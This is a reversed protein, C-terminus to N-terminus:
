AASWRGLENVPTWPLDGGRELKAPWGREERDGRWRVLAVECPKNSADVRPTMALGFGYEPWGMLASSGRPRLDREGGKTQGHGAHAEMVLAPGRDRLTDLAALVPAAHDDTQIAMPVLRYLPGIVLLDPEHEDMWQHVRALDRDKTIDMRRECRLNLHHAPDRQGKLKAQLTMSRAARRWQRESNEADVVLVSLPPIPRLTFPHVGASACIALQRVLTSKGAGEGGTVMARDRRELLGPIVWEYSDEEALVDALLRPSGDSVDAGAQVERLESIAASLSVSPEQGVSLAQHARLLIKDAQRRVSERRVIEAYYTVTAPAAFEVWRAVDSWLPYKTVEGKRRNVEDHLTVLNVPVGASVMGAVLGYLHGIRMDAFDSPSVVQAAFRLCGPEFIVAGVVAAEAAPLDELASM